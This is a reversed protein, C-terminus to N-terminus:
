LDVAMTRPMNNKFEYQLREFYSHLREETDKRLSKAKCCACCKKSELQYEELADFLSQYAQVISVSFTPDAGKFFEKVDKINDSNKFGFCSDIITGNLLANICMDVGIESPSLLILTGQVRDLKMQFVETVDFYKKLSISFHLLWEAQMWISLSWNLKLNLSM